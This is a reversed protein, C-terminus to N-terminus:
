AGVGSVDEPTPAGITLPDAAPLGSEARIRAVEELVQAETWDPHVLEVKVQTSAAEAQALLALTQATSGLDEGVESAFEVSLRETGPRMAGPFGQALDVALLAGWAERLGARRPAALRTIFFGM